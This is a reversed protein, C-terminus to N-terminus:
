FPTFTDRVDSCLRTVLDDDSLNALELKDADYSHALIAEILRNRLYAYKRDIVM